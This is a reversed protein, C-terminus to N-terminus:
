KIIKKLHLKTGNNLSPLLPCMRVTCEKMSDSLPQFYEMSVIAQLLLSSSCTGCSDMCAHWAVLKWDINRLESLSLTLREKFFPASIYYSTVTLLLITDPVQMNFLRSVLMYCLGLIDLIFFTPIRKMLYSQLLPFFLNENRPIMIIHRTPTARRTM